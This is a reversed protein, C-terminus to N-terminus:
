TRRHRIARGQEDRVVDIKLPLSETEARSLDAVLSAHDIDIGALKGERDFDVVVGPAVERSGVATSESLDTYLSDADRYYNLKM